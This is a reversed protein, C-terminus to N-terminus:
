ADIMIIVDSWTPASAAVLMQQLTKAIMTTPMRSWHECLSISHGCHAILKAHKSAKLLM